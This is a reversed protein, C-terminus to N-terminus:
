LKHLGTKALDYLKSRTSRFAKTTKVGQCIDAHSIDDHNATDFVFYGREASPNGDISGVIERVKGAVFSAFGWLSRQPSEPNQMNYAEARAVGRSVLEDWDTYGSRNVSLGISSAAQFATPLLVQKEPDIHTPDVIQHYLVETGLVPGPSFESAMEGEWAILEEQSKDPLLKCKEQNGRNEDFFSRCGM